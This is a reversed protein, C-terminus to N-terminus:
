HDKGWISGREKERGQKQRKKEMKMGPNLM